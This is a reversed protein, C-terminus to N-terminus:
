ARTVWRIGGAIWVSLPRPCRRVFTMLSTADEPALVRLLRLAIVYVVAGTAVALLLVAAPPVKDASSAVARAALACVTAAVAVAGLKRGPFPLGYRSRLLHAGIGVMTGQVCWRVTAAGAAGYEPVLLLCGLITLVAGLVSWRMILGAEGIGYIAASGVTAFSWAGAAMMLRASPVAGAYAEGFALRILEPMLAVGGASVPFAVLAVLVTLRRYDGKLRSADRSGDLTSFHPMLAGAILGVAQVVMGSWLLGVAFFGLEAPPSFRELFFLEARGWAVASILVALWTSAAYFYFGREPPTPPNFLATRAAGQIRPYGVLVFGLALIAFAAAAGLVAGQIGWLVAGVSQGAVSVVASAVTLLALTKFDQFGTLVAQNLGAWLQATVLMALAAGIGKDLDDFVVYRALLYTVACAAATIPVYGLTCWRVLEVQATARCQGQYNALYRTLAGPLGFTLLLVTFEVMWLAYSFRGTLEPGLVRAVLVGAILRGVSGLSSAAANWVLRHALPTGVSRISAQSAPTVPQRLLEVRRNVFEIEDPSGGRMATM